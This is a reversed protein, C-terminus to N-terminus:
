INERLHNEIGEREKVTQYSTLGMSPWNQKTFLSSSFPSRPSISNTNRSNTVSLLLQITIWEKPALPLPSLIHRLLSPVEHSEEAPEHQNPCLRLQQWPSVAFVTGDRWLRCTAPGPSAPLETGGCVSEMEPHLIAAGTTVMVKACSSTPLLFLCLTYVSQRRLHVVCLAMRGTAPDRLFPTSKLQHDRKWRFSWIRNFSQPLISALPGSVTVRM